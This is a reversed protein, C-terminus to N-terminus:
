YPYISKPMKKQIPHIFFRIQSIQATSPLFYIDHSPVPDLAARRSFNTTNRSVPKSPIQAGRHVEPLHAAPSINLAPRPFTASYAFSFQRGNLLSLTRHYWTATLALTFALLLVPCPVRNRTAHLNIHRCPMPYLVRRSLTSGGQHSRSAPLHTCHSRFLMHKGSKILIILHISSDLRTM